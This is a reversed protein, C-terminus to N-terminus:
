RKTYADKLKEKVKDFNNRITMTTVNLESAINKIDLDGDRLFSLIIYKEVKSYNDNEIESLFFNRKEIQDICEDSISEEQLNKQCWEGDENKFDVCLESEFILSETRKLDNLEFSNANEVNNNRIEELKKKNAWFKDQQYIPIRVHSSYYNSFQRQIENRIHYYSFTSFKNGSEYDYSHAAKILGIFGIDLVDESKIKFFKKFKHMFQMILKSNALVLEDLNIKMKRYAIKAKDSNEDNFNKKILYDISRKLDKGYKDYESVILRSNKIDFKSIPYYILGKEYCLILNEWAEIKFTKINKSYSIEKNNDILEINALSDLVRQFETSM